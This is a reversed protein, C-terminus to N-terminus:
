SWETPLVKRQTHSRARSEIYPCGLCGEPVNQDSEGNEGPERNKREPLEDGPELEGVEEVM